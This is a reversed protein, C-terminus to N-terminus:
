LRFGTKSRRRVPNPRTHDLGVVLVALTYFALGLLLANALVSKYGHRAVDLFPYLYRAPSGPLLEGRTLTFALYALPYLMWTAAQRLHTRAPPTLLLWDLVAALPLVTHLTHDALTAPWSADTIGSTLPFRPLVHHVLAATVVYLLTAGTVAGPLPHRASWARRASAFMVLALLVTSQVAFHSLVRAPSGLLAEVLVAGTALLALVLRYAAALPRHVPPVVARAPASSSLLAPTMGPVAPLDPLDRPIPATM